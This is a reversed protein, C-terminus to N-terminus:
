NVDIHHKYKDMDAPPTMYDGYMQTLVTDYDKPATYLKGEFEYDAINEYIERPFMERFKYAGLFNVVYTSDSYKYRKLTKDMRDLCKQTDFFREPQITNGVQILFKELGKRGPLDQNVVTSFNSYQLALKRYLLVFKHINRILANNPMGDLPFVDIWAYRTRKIRASNDNILFSTDEIRSYYITSENGKLFNRFVYGEPLAEDVVDCFRDYDERPMGVDIDDDWPIFGKHRVAGLFTGGMLFYQLGNQQCIETFLDMIKLEALQLKRLENEQAM